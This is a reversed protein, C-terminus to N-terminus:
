FGLLKRIVQFLRATMVMISNCTRYNGEQNSCIVRMKQLRNLRVEVMNQPSYLEILQQKSLGGYERIHLLIQIRRATESMNFLHFYAYLIGNYVILVYIFLSIFELVLVYQIAGIVLTGFLLPINGVLIIALLSNQPSRSSNKGYFRCYGFHIIITLLICLLLYILFLSSTHTNM